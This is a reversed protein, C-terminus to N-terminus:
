VDWNKGHMSMTIGISKEKNLLTSITAWINMPADSWLVGWPYMAGTLVVSTDKLIEEPLHESLYRWTDPMTYTGHTIFFDKIWQTHAKKIENVIAERDDDSLERSDKDCVKVTSYQCSAQFSHIIYKWIDVYDTFLNALKEIEWYEPVLIKIKEM